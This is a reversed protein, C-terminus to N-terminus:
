EVPGRLPKVRTTKYAAVIAQVAELDEIPSALLVEPGRRPTLIMSLGAGSHVALTTPSVAISFGESRLCAPQPLGAPAQGADPCGAIENSLQTLEVGQDDLLSATRYDRSEDQYFLGGEVVYSTTLDARSVMGVLVFFSKDDLGPIAREPSAFECVADDSTCYVEVPVGNPAVITESAARAAGMWGACALEAAAAVFVTFWANAFRLTM